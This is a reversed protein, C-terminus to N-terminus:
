YNLIKIIIYFLFTPEEICIYNMSHIRFDHSQISQKIFLEEIIKICISM